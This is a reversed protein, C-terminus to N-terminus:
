HNLFHTYIKNYTLGNIKIMRGTLPNREYGEKTQKKPFLKFYTKSGVKILRNTKPNRVWGPKDNRTSNVSAVKLTKKNEQKLLLKILESKSLKGLNSKNM